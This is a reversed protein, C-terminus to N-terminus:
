GVNILEYGQEVLAAVDPGHHDGPGEAGSEPGGDLAIGAAEIEDDIEFFNACYGCAGDILGRKKAEAYYDNVVGDPNEEAEPIWQTGQGDFFVVVDHGAEDLDRAYELNNAVPGPDGPPSNILFAYKGM